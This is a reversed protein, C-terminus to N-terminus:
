RPVSQERLGSFLAARPAPRQGSGLASRRLSSLLLDRTWPWPGTMRLEALLDVSGNRLTLTLKGGLLLRLRARWTLPMM